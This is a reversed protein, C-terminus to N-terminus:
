VVQVFNQLLFIAFEVRGPELWAARSAVARELVLM